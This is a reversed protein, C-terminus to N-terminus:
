RAGGWRGEQVALRGVLALKSGHISPFADVVDALATAATGRVGAPRGSDLCAELLPLHAACLAQSLVLLRGLCRVAAVQLSLPMSFECCWGSLASPQHVTFAQCFSLRM